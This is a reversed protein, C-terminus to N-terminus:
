QWLAWALAMGLVVFFRLYTVLTFLHGVAGETVRSLVMKPAYRARLTLPYFNNRHRYKRGRRVLTNSLNSYDSQLSDNDSSHSSCSYALHHPDAHLTASSSTPSDELGLRRLALQRRSLPTGEREIDTSDIQLGLDQDCHYVEEEKAKEKGKGLKRRSKRKRIKRRDEKERLEMMQGDEIMRQEMEM